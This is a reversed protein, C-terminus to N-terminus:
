DGPLRELRLRVPGLDQCMPQGIPSLAAELAGAILDDLAVDALVVIGGPELRLDGTWEFSTPPDAPKAKAASV